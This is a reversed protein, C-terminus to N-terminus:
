VNLNQREKQNQALKARLEEYLMQITLSHQPLEKEIELLVQLQNALKSHQKMLEIYRPHQYLPPYRIDFPVDEANFPQSMKM